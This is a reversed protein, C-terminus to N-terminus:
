SIKTFWDFLWLARFLLPQTHTVKELLGGIQPMETGFPLLTGVRQEEVLPAGSWSHFLVAMYKWELPANRDRMSIMHLYNDFATPSRLHFLFLGIRLDRCELPPCVTAFENENFINNLGMLSDITQRDFTILETTPCSILDPDYIRSPFLPSRMLAFPQGGLACLPTRRRQAWDTIRFRVSPYIGQM